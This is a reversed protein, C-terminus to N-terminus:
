ECLSHWTVDEIQFSSFIATFINRQLMDHSNQVFQHLYYTKLSHLIFFITFYLQKKHFYILVVLDPGLKTEM